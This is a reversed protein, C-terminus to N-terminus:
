QLIHGHRYSLYVVAYSELLISSDYYLYSAIETSALISCLLEVNSCGSLSTYNVGAACACLTLFSRKAQEYNAKLETLCIAEKTMEQKLLGINQQVRHLCDKLKAITSKLSTLKENQFPISEDTQKDNTIWKSQLATLTSTCESSVRINSQAILLLHHHLNNDSHSQTKRRLILKETNCGIPEFPCSVYQLPCEAMHRPLKYREIQKCTCKNPCDIPFFDCEKLHLKGNQLTGTWGCGSNQYLCQVKLQNISLELATNEILKFEDKRCVPCSPKQDALM